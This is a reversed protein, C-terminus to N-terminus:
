MLCVAPRASTIRAGCIQESNGKDGNFQNYTDLIRWMFTGTRGDTSEWNGSVSRKDASILGYFAITYGGGTAANGALQGNNLILDLNFQQLSGGMWVVWAGSWDVPAAMVVQTATPAPTPSLPIVTPQVVQPVSTAPVATVQVIVVKPEETPVVVNIPLTCALLAVVIACCAIIIWTKINKM